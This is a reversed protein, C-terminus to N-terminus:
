RGGGLQPDIDVHTTVQLTWGHWGHLDSMARYALWDSRDTEGFVESVVPTALGLRECWADVARVDNHPMYVTVMGAVTYGAPAPLGCDFVLYAIEQLITSCDRAGPPQCALTGTVESM